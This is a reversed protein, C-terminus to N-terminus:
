RAASLRTKGTPDKDAAAVLRRFAFFQWGRRIGTSCAVFNSYFFETSSMMAMTGAPNLNRSRQKGAM